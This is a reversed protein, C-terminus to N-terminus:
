NEETEQEKEKLIKKYIEIALEKNDFYGLYEYGDITYHCSIPAHFNKSDPNLNLMNEQQTCIRLNSKRNDYRCHNIHDVVMDNPPNMLYRHLFIIKKGNNIKTSGNSFIYGAKNKTWYYKKVKEYDEKDFLFSNNKDDFGIYFDENSFDFTNYKKRRYIENTKERFKCSQCCIRKTGTQLKHLTTTIKNGCDCECLVDFSQESDSLGIIEIIKLHNFKKNMFKSNVRKLKDKNNM